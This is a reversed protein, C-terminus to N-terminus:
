DPPPYAAMMRNYKEQTKNLIAKFRPDDRVFDYKPDQKLGAPDYRNVPLSVKSDLVSLFEDKMRLISLLRLDESAPALAKNSGGDMALLLGELIKISQWPRSMGIAQMAEIRQSVQKKNGETASMAGLYFHALGNTPDLELGKEFDKRANDYLGLNVSALGRQNLFTVHLPDLEL